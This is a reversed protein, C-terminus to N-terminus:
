SSIAKSIKAFIEKIDSSLNEFVIGDECCKNFSEDLKIKGLIKLNHNKSLEEVGGNGFPYIKQSNNEIYSMNEIIGYIPVKTKKFMEIGRNADVISLKQPTTIIISGDLNVQQTFTLIADGTGPPLDILLYDLDGWIVNETFTKIASIVMPGRWIMPSNKDILFGMSMIKINQAIIPKINKGDKSSPKDSINFLEPISPGYIDADLIGVSFNQKQLAVALNACISSKGVGGKASSIAIIKKVGPIPKKLFHSKPEIKEKFNGSLNVKKQNDM